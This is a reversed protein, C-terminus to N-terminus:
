KRAGRNMTQGKVIRDFDVFWACFPSRWTADAQHLSQRAVKWPSLRFPAFYGRWAEHCAQIITQWLIRLTEIPKRPPTDWVGSLVIVGIGLAFCTAFCFLLNLPNMQELMEFFNVM